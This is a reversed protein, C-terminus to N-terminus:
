VPTRPQGALGRGRGARPTSAGDVEPREFNPSNNLIGGFTVNSRLEGWKVEDTILSGSAASGDAYRLSFGCEKPRDLSCCAGRQSCVQCGVTCRDAACQSSDCAVTQAFNADEVSYRNAKPICSKCGTMPVALTSSGTDVQVRIHKNGLEIVSYYEGVGIIGGHLDVSFTRKSVADAVDDVGHIARRFIRQLVSRQSYDIEVIRVTPPMGKSSGPSQIRPPVASMPITVIRPLRPSKRAQGDPTLNSLARVLDARRRPPSASDLWYKEDMEQSTLRSFIRQFTADIPPRSQLGAGVEARKLRLEASATAEAAGPGPSDAPVAIRVAGGLSAFTVLTATALLLTVPVRRTHGGRRAPTRPALNKTSGPLPEGGGGVRLQDAM